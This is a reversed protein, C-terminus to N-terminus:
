GPSRRSPSRCPGNRRLYTEIALLLTLAAVVGQEAGDGLGGLHKIQQVAAAVHLVGVAGLGEDARADLWHTGCKGANLKRDRHGELAEAGQLWADLLAPAPLGDRRVARGELHTPLGFGPRAVMAENAQARLDPALEVLGDLAIQENGGDVAIVELYDDGVLAEGGGVHEGKVVAAAGLLPDEALDLGVVREGVYRGVGPADVPALQDGGEHGAVKGGFQLHAAGPQGCSWRSANEVTSLM